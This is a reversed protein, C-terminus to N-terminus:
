GESEVEVEDQKKQSPGLDATHSGKSLAGILPIEKNETSLAIASLQARLKEDPKVVTELMEGATKAVMMYKFAREEDKISGKLSAELARLTAAKQTADLAKALDLHTPMVGMRMQSLLAVLPANPLEAAVRRPDNYSAAELYKAKQKGFIDDERVEAFSRLRLITRIETSDVLSTNWFFHQYSEVAETTCPFRRHSTIAAAVAAPTAGSLLMSEVFEKVRPQDLIELARVIPGTRFFLPRIREKMLFRQSKSHLADKPYFPVPPVCTARLGDLHDHGIYDLQSAQLLSKIKDNSHKAPNVILYKIYFEAPSRRIM